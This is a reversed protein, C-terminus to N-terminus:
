RREASHTKEEAGCMGAFYFSFAPTLRRRRSHGDESHLRSRSRSAPRRGRDKFVLSGVFEWGLWFFALIPVSPVRYTNQESYRAHLQKLYFIKAPIACSISCCLSLAEDLDLTIFIKRAFYQFCLHLFAPPPTSLTSEQTNWGSLQSRTRM